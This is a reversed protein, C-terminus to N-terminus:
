RVMDRTRKWNDSKWTEHDDCWRKRVQANSETFQPKVVAAKDHISSQHLERRDTKTSLPDKPYINLKTTV